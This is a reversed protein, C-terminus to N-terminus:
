EGQIGVGLLGPGAHVVLAPSIPAFIIDANIRKKLEQSMLRAREEAGAHAVLLRVKSFGEAARVVQDLAGTLAAKVGRAKEVTYYIGESNCSIIPRIGLLTGVKATVLGIRGGKQLYKLTDVCFFVKTNAILTNLTDVIEDMSKGEAALEAARIATVGAGIGINKTDIIRIDMDEKCDEAILRLLNNTGSLGSSITVAIVQRYGDDYIQQLLAQAEAPSPLSTKPIETELRDMVQEPTIDVRDRYCGDQYQINLPLMYMGYKDVYEQPVDTGSDILIAIDMHKECEMIKHQM